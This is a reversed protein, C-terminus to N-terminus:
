LRLIDPNLVLLLPKKIFVKKYTNKPLHGTVGDVMEVILTM